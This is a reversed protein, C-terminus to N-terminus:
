GITVRITSSRKQDFNVKLVYVGASRNEANIEVFRSNTNKASVPIRQGLMDFMEVSQINEEAKILLQGNTSPNPYVTVDIPRNTEEVFVDNCLCNHIGLNSWDENPLSDWELTVNFVPTPNSTVGQQVSSKRLLTHDKTWWTGITGDYPFVDSWAQGTVMAADGMMGFIDVYNWSTGNFKQISIADNGNFYMAYSVNYDPCMFTDALAQLELDVMCEQGPCPQSADLKEIVVVWVDHAPITVNGLNVMAQSNAEGAVASTGNNYRVLRYNSNLSIPSNTPNYIEIAKNNNGGETYESIFIESCNQANAVFAFAFLLTSLLTKKM